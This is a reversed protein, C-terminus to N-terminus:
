GKVRSLWEIDAGGEGARGVVAEVATKSGTDRAWQNGTLVGRCEREAQAENAERAKLGQLM